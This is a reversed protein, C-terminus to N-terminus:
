ASPRRTAKRWPLRFESGQRVLRCPAGGADSLRQTTGAAQTRLYRLNYNLDSPLIRYLWGDAYPAREVTAPEEIVRANAELVRGSVPCMLSHLIADGSAFVACCSGQVLEEGAPLLEVNKVGSITRVFVDSAGVRVTGAPEAAAWSVYGLRFYQPPCTTPDPPPWGGNGAAEMLRGYSFGRRVAALLEDATFPKAIFDIAGALLSRVANEVTSYGTIMVVPTRDGRRAAEALYQFGDLREMMIDCLVLRYSCRDLRGLGAAGSEAADVSLGESGCIKAVAQVVVAEDDIVLIDRMQKM